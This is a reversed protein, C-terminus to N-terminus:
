RSTPCAASAAWSPGCGTRTGPGPSSSRSGAAAPWRTRARRQRRRVRQDARQLHRELGDAASVNDRGREPAAPNRRGRDGAPRQGAMVDGPAPLVDVENFRVDAAGSDGSAALVTVGNRAADIYAGRLSLLSQRAPFTQETASFSQSIVGGLHHSIVYKEAAVIQPFGTTGENESTPTEVLLISAGPAIAHAYEVDLDTEGAWGERNSDPRYPPVKGAPQIM